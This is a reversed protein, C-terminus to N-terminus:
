GMSKYLAIYSNAIQDPKHETAKQQAAKGFKELLLNNKALTEVSAVFSELDSALFGTEGNTILSATGGNEIAVSPIGMAACEVMTMGASEAISASLVSDAAGAIEALQVASLEGLWKVNVLPSSYSGGNKGVLLLTLSRESGASVQEIAKLIFELNKNPDRLDKAIVIAVFDNSHIGLRGRAGSRNPETFFVDNIPNSIVSCEQERFVSSLKAQISMWSTPSVIRLNPYPKNMEKKTLNISVLNQFVSRAQPCSLCGNRYEKCDHSHHCGGTFPNMDHITWVVKRGSDLLNRLSEQNLVGAMWHLHIISDPRIRRIDLTELNGRLPSFLTKESHSSALWEDAAAALTLVPARLPQSRLDSNVVTLVNVDHGLERQANALTRAVMGAGGTESFTIHDIQV